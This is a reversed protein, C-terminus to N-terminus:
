PAIMHWDPTHFRTTNQCVGSPFGAEKEATDVYLNAGASYVSVSRKLADSSPLPLGVIYLWVESVLPVGTVRSPLRNANRNGNSGGDTTISPSLIVAVASFRKM